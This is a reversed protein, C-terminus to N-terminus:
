KLRARRYGSATVADEWLQDSFAFDVADYLPAQLFLWHVARAFYEMPIELPGAQHARRHEEYFVRWLADGEGAMRLGAAFAKPYFFRTHPWGSDAEYEQLDYGQLCTACDDASRIGAFRLEHTMFREAIQDEGDRQFLSKKAQVAPQGVFILVLNVGGEDMEDHIDRLWEFETYGLHQAEDLFVLITTSKNTDAIELLREKLRQRLQSPDRGSSASHRAMTLLSSFFAIEAAIRKHQIRVRLVPLTPREEMLLWQAYVIASSKGFRTRAYVIAGPISLQVCRQVLDYFDAIAPTPIRYRKRAVPHTDISIPRLPSNM